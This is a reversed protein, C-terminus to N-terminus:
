CGGPLQACYDRLVRSYPAASLAKRLNERAAPIEGATITAPDRFPSVYYLAYKRILAENPPANRVYILTTDDWYILAWRQSVLKGVLSMVARTVKEPRYPLFFYNMQYKDNVLADWNSADTLIDMFEQVPQGAFIESRGDIFVKERPWSQWILYGGDDYLNFRPGQLGIRSVFDAGLVPLPDQQVSFGPFASVRACLAFVGFALILPYVWV